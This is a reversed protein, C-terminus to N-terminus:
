DQVNCSLHPEPDTAELRRLDPDARLSLPLEAGCLTAVTKLNTASLGVAGTTISYRLTAHDFNSNTFTARTMIARCLLAGDFSINDLRLNPLKIYALNSGSLDLHVGLDESRRFGILQMGALVESSILRGSEESCYQYTGGVPVPAHSRVFFAVRLLIRQRIAPDQEKDMIIGLLELSNLTIEPNKSALGQFIESVHIASADPSATSAPTPSQAPAPYRAIVAALLTVVGGIVSTQLMTRRMLKEPTSERSRRHQPQARRTMKGGQGVHVSCVLAVAECRCRLQMVRRCVRRALDARASLALNAWASLLM